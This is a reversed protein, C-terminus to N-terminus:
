GAHEKRVRVKGSADRTLTALEVKDPSLSTDMTKSLIKIVQPLAQLFCCCPLSVNTYQVVVGHFCGHAAAWAQVTHLACWGAM